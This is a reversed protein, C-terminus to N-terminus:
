LGRHAIGPRLSTGSIGASAVFTFGPMVFFESYFHSNCQM